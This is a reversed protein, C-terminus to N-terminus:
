ISRISRTTCCARTPLRGGRIGHGQVGDAFRRLDQRRRVRGGGFGLLSAEPEATLNLPVGLVDAYIQMFLESRTAGGSVIIREARLGHNGLTDLIDRLGYAIGEMLARFVHGRSSQLSLGWITGRAFPDTHPTRNGQFYDLAILGDSGIPVAAAERDLLEYPSSGREAVELDRAFNRRFWSLISGTSVQGAEVLNLGPILADPFSGFIGPLHFEQVSLASIVNSSGTVIGMAGPETVGQGLLAVFADGGGAAVPIGARLGLEDAMSPLLPGIVDGVKLIDSPFKDEIGDLGIASFFSSPWGGSPLHYFWRQTATNINLTYRGTLRLAIWDTYELLYRTQAYLEPQEEKFWLAKPAMWEANVGAPCYRLAEHGSAFIRGAQATARVDMWLFAPRLASGDRAWPCSRAPRPM